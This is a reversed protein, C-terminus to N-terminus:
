VEPNVPEIENYYENCKRVVLGMDNPIYLTDFIKHSKASSYVGDDNTVFEKKVKHNTEDYSSKGILVVDFKGEPTIYEQVMKGTTKMRYGKRGDAKDYEEGHALMIFNKNLPLREMAQFIRGMDFGIKKPTDWGSSLAKEMYYDQMIYNSDDFVINMIPTTGLLKIAHAVLAANNTVVRRYDAMQAATTTESFNPVVPYLKKSGKGPLDKSTASIIYSVKPDLGEIGYEEDKMLSTTKGFGSEAIGLIKSM